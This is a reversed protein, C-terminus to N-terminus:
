LGPRSPAQSDVSTHISSDLSSVPAYPTVDDQRLFYLIGMDQPLVSLCAETIYLTVLFVGTVTDM